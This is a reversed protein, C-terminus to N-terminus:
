SFANATPRSLSPPTSHLLVSSVRLLMWVLIWHRWIKRSATKQKACMLRYNTKRILFREFPPDSCFFEFSLFFFFVFVFLSRNLVFALRAWTLLWTPTSYTKHSRRLTHTQIDSHVPRERHTHSHPNCKFGDPRRNDIRAVVRVFCGFAGGCASTEREGGVRSHFQRISANLSFLFARRNMRHSADYNCTSKCQFITQSATANTVEHPVEGAYGDGMPM